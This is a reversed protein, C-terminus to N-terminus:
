KDLRSFNTLLNFLKQQRQMKSVIIIMESFNNWTYFYVLMTFTLLIWKLVAKKKNWDYAGQTRKADCDVSSEFDRHTTNAIKVGNEDECHCYATSMHCQKSPFTGDKNCSTVFCGRLGVCKKKEAAARKQCATKPLSNEISLLSSAMSSLGTFFFVVSVAFPETTCRPINQYPKM